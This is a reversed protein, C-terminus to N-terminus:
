FGVRDQLGHFCGYISVAGRFDDIRILAYLKGAFGIDLKQFVPADPLTHGSLGTPHIVPDHLSPKAAEFILSGVLLVAAGFFQPAPNRNIHMIVVVPPGMLAEAIGNRRLNIPNSFQPCTLPADGAKCM